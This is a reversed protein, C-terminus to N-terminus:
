TNDILGRCPYTHQYFRLRVKAQELSTSEEEEHTAYTDVGEKQIENSEREAEHALEADTTASSDVQESM